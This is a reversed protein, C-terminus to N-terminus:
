GAAPEARFVHFVRDTRRRYDEYPPYAEVALAWLRRREAEDGVLRARMRVVRGRDRIEVEPDALLNRCWLPHRPAGGMSGVLVYGDGDAVKMLPAKRIAGTRRGRHTVVIVPLGTDRLTAGERGGSEEYVRVQDAVWARPSPLYEGAPAGARPERGGRAGASAEWPSVSAPAGEAAINRARALILEDLDHQPLVYFRGDRLAGMVAEAAEEPEAGREYAAAARPDANRRTLATKVFWPCLAHARVRLGRRRLQLHLTETLSVVAHKAAGYILGGPVVGSVSATNVVHAEEDMAIMRPVFSRVGHVVGYLNLAFVSEWLDLPSEWIPGRSGGGGGANNCLVHVAGWRGFATEALAEVSAPDTVDATAAVADTGAERLAAAEREAGGADLDALVVSMGEAAFRRAFARGMGSAAGTVVAVRGAFEDM